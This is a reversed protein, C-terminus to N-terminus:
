AFCGGQRNNGTKEKQYTDHLKDQDATFTQLAVELENKASKLNHQTQALKKLM